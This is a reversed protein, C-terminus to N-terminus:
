LHEVHRGRGRDGDHWSRCGVWSDDSDPRDLEYLLKAVTDAVM